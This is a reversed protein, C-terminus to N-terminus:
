QVARENNFDYLKQGSVLELNMLADISGMQANIQGARSRFLDSEADLLETSTRVGARRGVRALRVAEKSRTVDNVRSRYVACFYKYKRKWFEFDQQAKIEAMKVSKEMQITQQESQGTKSTSLLGDFLNWNLNLGIMYADRFAGNDDFRDNRNNYYDTQGFLSIRPAWTDKLSQYQIRSAEKKQRLSVIDKRQELIKDNLKSILNESLVPLQGVLPRKESEHGLVEGLRYKSLEAEDQSNLLESQAESVQVEVRLVDYNTSVGARKFAQIDRLHDQLTKLNQEAVDKLTQSALSRFFQTIVQRTVMFQTWEYDSKASEVSVQGAKLRNTSVFGDFLPLTARLTLQTTPVVQPITMANGGITTELLMYKKDTLYNLNASLSPLFGSYAETKKWKAEELGAQSKQIQLSNQSSERLAEDLTLNQAVSNLSYLSALILALILNM